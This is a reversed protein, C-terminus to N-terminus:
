DILLNAGKISSWGRMSVAAHPSVVIMGSALQTSGLELRERDPVFSARAYEPLHEYREKSEDTEKSIAPISRKRSYDNLQDIAEKYRQRSLVHLETPSMFDLQEEDNGDNGQLVSTLHEQDDDHVEM